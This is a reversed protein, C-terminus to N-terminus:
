GHLRQTNEKPLPLSHHKNLNKTHLVVIAWVIFIYVYGVMIFGTGNINEIKQGTVSIVMIIFSAMIFSIVNILEKIQKQAKTIKKDNIPTNLFEWFDDINQLM